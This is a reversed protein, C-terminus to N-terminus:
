VGAYVPLINYINKGFFSFGMTTLLGAMVFGNLEIKNIRQVFLTFAMVLFVNLLTPGIGSVSTYDTILTDRSIILRMLGSWLEHVPTTVFIIVLFFLLILDIHEIKKIIM